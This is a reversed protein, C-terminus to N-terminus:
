IRNTIKAVTFLIGWFDNILVKKAENIGDIYAYNGNGKDALTEM